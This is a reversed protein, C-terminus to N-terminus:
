ARVKLWAQLCDEHAPMVLIVEYAVGDAVFRDGPQLNTDAITPHNKYGLAMADCQFTIGGDGVIARQSSLTELRVSQAGLTSAGRKVTITTAKLAVLAGLASAMGENVFAAINPM